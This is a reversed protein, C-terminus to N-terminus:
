FSTMERFAELRDDIDMTTLQELSTTSFAECTFGAVITGTVTGRKLAEFREEAYSRALSGALAGVFTDGAGTPDRVERLPYAGCTFFRDPGFLLAGHEGKKIIVYAPGMDQIREGAKILHNTGALLRAESDNIVLLDIRGLLTDLADRAGNIWIDMTDAISFCDAECQDLVELQSVPNINALLVVRPSLGKPLRP